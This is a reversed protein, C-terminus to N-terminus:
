HFLSFLLQAISGHSRGLIIASSGATGILLKEKKEENLLRRKFCRRRACIFVYVISFQTCISLLAGEGRWSRGDAHMDETKKMM